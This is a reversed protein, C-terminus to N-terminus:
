VMQSQHVSPSCVSQVPSAGQLSFEYMRDKTCTIKKKHSVLAIGECDFSPPKATHCHPHRGLSHFSSKFHGSRNLMSWTDTDQFSIQHRVFVVIKWTDPCTSVPTTNKSKLPSVSWYTTKATLHGWEKLIHPPTDDTGLALAMYNVKGVHTCSPVCM